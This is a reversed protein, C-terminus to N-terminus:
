MCFRSEIAAPAESLMKKVISRVNRYTKNQATEFKVLNSHDADVAIPEEISKPLQLLASEDEVAMAFEGERQWSEGPGQLFTPKHFTKLTPNIL